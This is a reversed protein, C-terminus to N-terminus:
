HVMVKERYEGQGHIVQVLYLGPRLTTIHVPTEDEALHIQKELVLRGDLSYFAVLANGTLNAAPKLFIVENAPNPYLLLDKAAANVPGTSTIENEATIYEEGVLYDLNMIVLGDTVDIDYYTEHPMGPIDAIITYSGPPIESFSFDGNEDTTTYAVVNDTSKSKGVLIVDAKKVPKAMINLTSKFLNTSDSEYIMGGLQATGTSTPKHLLLIDNGTHPPTSEIVIPTATQWNSASPFYTPAAEAMSAVPPYAFLIYRGYPVDKLLFTGDALAITSDSVPAREYRTVGYLKVRSGPAPEGGPKYIRGAIDSTFSYRSFVLGDEGENDIAFLGLTNNMGSFQGVFYINGFPDVNIQRGTISGENSNFNPKVYNVEGLFNIKAVFFGGNITADTLTVAGFVLPNSLTGSFYINGLPDASLADLLNDGASSGTHAWNKMGTARNLQIILVDRTGAEANPEMDANLLVTPGMFYTVLNVHGFPDTKLFLNKGPPLLFSLQLNFGSTWNVAGDSKYQAVFADYGPSTNDITDHGIYVQPSNFLGAVNVEGAPGVAIKDISENLLGNITRTWKFEGDYSLKSVFACSTDARITDPGLYFEGYGRFNGALYLGDTSLALHRPLIVSSSGGAAFGCTKAWELNGHTDFKAAFLLVSTTDGAVSERGFHLSDAAFTGSLYTNGFKDLKMDMGAIGKSPGKKTEAIRIWVIRGNRALKFIVLKDFFQNMPFVYKGFRFSSTNRVMCMGVTEGLENVLVDVPEVISGANGGFASSTWIIKGVPNHRSIYMSRSSPEDSGAIIWDDINMEAGEFQGVSTINGMTDAISAFVSAKSSTSIWKWAPDQGDSLHPLGFSLSVFLLFFTSTRM